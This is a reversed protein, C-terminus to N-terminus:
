PRHIEVLKRQLRIVKTEAESLRQRCDIVKGLALKQEAPTDEDAWAAVGVLETIADDLDLRLDIIKSRADVIKAMVERQRIAADLATPLCASETLM